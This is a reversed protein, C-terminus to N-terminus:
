KETELASDVREILNSSNFPKHIFNSIELNELKENDIEREKAITLFIIKVDKLELDERIKEALDVGDMGPMFIDILLLDINQNKIKELAIESDNATTVKYNESELIKRVVKLIGPVDDVVLIHNQELM